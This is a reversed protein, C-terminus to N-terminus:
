SLKKIVRRIIDFPIVSSAIIIVTLLERFSLPVCRFLDGAFYIMIIQVLAISGMILIFVKNKSINSLIWVRDSRSNFCNFIGAFVFLAYFGTLFHMDGPDSVFLAKFFDLTLFGICLLLTYGGTILV